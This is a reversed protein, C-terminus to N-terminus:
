NELGTSWEKPNQWKPEEKKRYRFAFQWDLEM